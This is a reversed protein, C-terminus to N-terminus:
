GDEGIREWPESLEWGLKKAAANAARIALHQKKHGYTRYAAEGKILTLTAIWRAERRKSINFSCVEGKCKKMM